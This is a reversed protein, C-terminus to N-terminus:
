MAGALKMHDAELAQGLHLLNVLRDNMKAIGMFYEIPVKVEISPNREIMKEDFDAVLVVDDILAGILGASTEVILVLRNQTQNDKHKLELKEVLDVIGVIQGRLNIVGKYYNVMFPVSKTEVHKIVERISTLPSAYLEQAVKYVIFRRSLEDDTGLGQEVQNKSVQM